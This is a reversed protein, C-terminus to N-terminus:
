VVHADTESVKDVGDSDVTANRGSAIVDLWGEPRVRGGPYADRLYAECEGAWALLQEEAGWEGMAMLGVPIKGQGVKPDVYGIPCSVAPCGSTNALFVYSMNDITVNADMFGRADDGPAVPWGPLPSTPTVILLGPHERFLFALHRMILGRLRQCRKYTQADTQEAISMIVRNPLNVLRLWDQRRVTRGRAQDAMEAVCTNAHAIGAEPLHPITIQIVEYGNSKALHDVAARCAAAVHPDAHAWWDDYVGIVKPGSPSPPVSRAFRGSRSCSPDPQAMIRYALTLDAVTAALPGTVCVSSDMAVTRHHSPKLGYVGNFSAPVRISGGADTCVAIPVVGACLASAAGSSSGGPYYAENHWNTPTGWSVNFGSTDSGLEHMVLKGVVVAGAEELKRVPWTTEKAPAFFPEDAVYRM